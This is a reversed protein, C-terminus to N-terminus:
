FGGELATIYLDIYHQAKRLDEIRKEKGGKRRCTYKIIDKQFMDLKNAICFEIPQIKFGKYHDGGVQVKLPDDSRACTGEEKVLELSGVPWHFSTDCLRVGYGSVGEVVHVRGEAAIESMSDISKYLDRFITWSNDWGEETLVKKVIRVKAGPVIGLAKAKAVYTQEKLAETAGDSMTKELVIPQWAPLTGIASVCSWCRPPVDDISVGQVHHKCTNCDREIM